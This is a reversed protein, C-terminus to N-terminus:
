IGLIQKKKADFEEESIVGQAKLQALQELEQAYSPQAPAAQMPAPAPEAYEPEDYTGQMAM